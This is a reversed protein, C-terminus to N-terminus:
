WASHEVAELCSTDLGGADGGAVLFASAISAACAHRLTGHGSFPVVVHRARSLTKMARVAAVKPTVTDLAGSLLLMPRDSVVPRRSAVDLPAVPWADCAEGLDLLSSAARYRQQAELEVLAHLGPGNPWLEGCAITGFLGPAVPGHGLGQIRDGLSIRWPHPDVESPPEGEPAADVISEGLVVSAMTYWLSRDGLAAAHIARPARYRLSDDILFYRLLELFAREDEARVEGEVWIPHPESLRAARLGELDADLDPAVAVCARDAACDAVLREVDEDFSRVSEEFPSADPPVVGDLVAATVRTPFARVYELALRTGYSTALISVEALGLRERLADLDRAAEGSGYRDLGVDGLAAGCAAWGDADTPYGGRCGLYGSGGAGRVDLFYLDLQEAADPVLSPVYGADVVASSGPGGALYFLARGESASGLRRAVRLAVSGASPDDRDAPVDLAACAVNAPLSPFGDPWDGADCPGFALGETPVDEPPPTTSVAETEGDGSPGAGACGVM